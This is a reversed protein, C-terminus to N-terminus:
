VGARPRPQPLAQRRGPPLSERHKGFIPSTLAAERGIHLPQASYRDARQTLQRSRCARRATARRAGPPRRLSLGASVGPWRQRTAADGDSGHSLKATRLCLLLGTFLGALGTRHAVSRCLRQCRATGTTSKPVYEAFSPASLKEAARAVRRCQGDAPRPARRGVAPIMLSSTKGPPRRRPRQAAHARGTPRTGVGGSRAVREPVMGVWTTMRAHPAAM